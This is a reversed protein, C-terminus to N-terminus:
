GVRASRVWVVAWATAATSVASPVASYVHKGSKLTQVAQPGHLHPQTIIAVADVDLACLADLSPCTDPIEFREANERLKEADLDCLVVQDVAPHAKFLPIFHRAFAGTGCVGVRIGM